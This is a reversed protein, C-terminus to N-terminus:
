VWSGDGRPLRRAFQRSPLMVLRTPQGRRVLVIARQRFRRALTGLRRPDAGVLMHQERWGSASGHGSASPLRRVAEELRQLMRRNWGEPMRRSFPNYATVFGGSGCRMALLLRDIETSRRGVRAVAGLAEYETRL